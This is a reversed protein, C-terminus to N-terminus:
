TYFNNWDHINNYEFNGCTAGRFGTQNKNM